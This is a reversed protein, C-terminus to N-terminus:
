SAQIGERLRTLLASLSRVPAECSTGRCIFAATAGPVQKGALAAPLGGADEPIAIVFRRPSYLKALAASWASAEAGRIVVSELGNLLEDLAGLLTAHGEPHEALASGAAAITREAAELYRPEALLTGLRLLVRAAIGNGAPIADDAYSKPRHMLREADDATFWFGGREDAFRALLGEALRIADALDRPEYRCELLALLADALFAHDDLFGPVQARGDKYTAYLHGESWLVRRLAALAEDAAALFAPEELARASVALARIMLANWSTLIKEDRHPRVRAARLPKLGALAAAVLAQADGHGTLSAVEEFSRRAALHFAHGEFNPPGDLGFRSALCAYEAGPLAAELEARAFVYYKGEEGESDADLSSYFAGEPARMEALAWGATALATARFRPEGTARAAEAYLALLLANDYLMKEFHPIEWGGDVSYRAFGGGVQDFIGGEAMRTLTLTAMYLAKLDPPETHASAAWTRLLLELYPPHPFKPASGFGGSEPDFSAELAARARALPRADPAAPTGPGAFTAFVELLRAGQARIEARHGAYYDAVKELLTTFPPLGHRATNPFYTGGFFPVQDEPALFMTLPWGGGRHTILQQAIQYIRDLDPREERDVKISVFRANLIRATAADAFSERAMVHCWHCASYGVSLLIPRDLRKAEALAAPGWPWWEVPNGAHERLYPSTEANLREGGVIARQDV